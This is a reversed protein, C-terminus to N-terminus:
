RSRAYEALNQWFPLNHPEGWGSGLIGVDALVLVQGGANGSDLLAVVPQGDMQALVQSGATTSIEFPLGNGPGLELTRVGAVLPNDGTVQAQTGSLTDEEYAVGFREALANADSWDENTEFGQNGYKLRHASNTVVLLGGGAVYAQFADIEAPTWAEDYLSVDGDPSPYDVVPLAVVLDTHELDAPTLAQGYPILDVDFGQMALAMGLETLGTPTMHVPETHSAVFLARRDAAPTVRLNPDERGTDLAAALVVRAMQEFVDGMERVLDVTDYPDHIHSAYHVSGNYEPPEYILDAHPVDFGGFSNNDSYVYPVDEPVTEVGLEEAIGTLYDPWALRWDGLHGYSWTVLKLEAPLGDLPRSLMDTQLMAETRDLLEQHTTAFYSSGYLGLEESGFWVLYLDTPPQVHAADLVRAVELLIASGSGDDLAGPADPSDIHAGLIVGRSPDVGPIRAVLNGSTAPSSVDADWTLRASEVGALDDWGRVRAPGLDEMRTYLVPVVPGSEVYSFANIDGVFSGHSEGPTNSFTTVLVIGAPERALLESVIDLAQSPDVLVRDVAAYDLFVVKGQADDHSLAHVDEATRVVVVPGSVVVPNRASDNLTGDSDFRLATAVDDRPGRLGDAPVEIEQGNLTLHLRTEWLETGLFVHFSQRELALGQQRLHDFASLEAAVYDLAEAEGESASNRWGSYPQIATLAEDFSLLSDLSILSFPDIQPSPSPAVPPLSAAPSSPPGAAPLAPEQVVTPLAPPSTPRQVGVAPQDIATAPLVPTATPGSAVSCGVLAILLIIIPAHALKLKM